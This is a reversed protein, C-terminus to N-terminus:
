RCKSEIQRRRKKPDDIINYFSDIYALAGKRTRPTLEPQSKWLEFIESRRSDFIQLTGELIGAEKRCFGRYLRERVSTLELRPSPLAYPADVLGALDFDYPVPLFLAGPDPLFFARGNHCCRDEPPGGLMSYDTNGMMFQFVSVLNLAAPDYKGMSVANAKVKKGGIRRALDSEAEILFAFRTFPKRRGKTDKYTVRALRVRFSRDTLLNFTRYVLFEKLVLQEFKADSKCHAVLKVKNQGDFLTGKVQKRKFDIWIPPFHCIDPRRRLRGRAKVRVDFSRQGLSPDSCTLGADLFVPAESEKEEAAVGRQKMLDAFPVELTFSIPDDGEFIDGLALSALVLCFFCVVQWYHKPLASLAHGTSNM